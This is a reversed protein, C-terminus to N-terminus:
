DRYLPISEDISSGKMTYVQKERDVQFLLPVEPGPIILSVRLWVVNARLRGQQNDGLVGVARTRSEVERLGPVQTRGPTRAAAHIGRLGPRLPPM